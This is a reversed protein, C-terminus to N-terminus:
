ILDNVMSIWYKKYDRIKVNSFVFYNLRKMNMVFNAVNIMFQWSCKKMTKMVTSKFCRLM